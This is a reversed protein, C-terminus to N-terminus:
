SIIAERDDDNHHTLIRIKCFDFFFNISNLVSSWSKFLSPPCVFFDIRRSPLIVLSINWFFLLAIKNTRKSTQATGSTIAITKVVPVLYSQLRFELVSWSQMIHNCDKGIPVLYSQLTSFQGITVYSHNRSLDRSFLNEIKAIM